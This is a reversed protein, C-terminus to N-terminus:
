IQKADTNPDTRPNMFRYTISSKCHTHAHAHSHIFIYLICKYIYM